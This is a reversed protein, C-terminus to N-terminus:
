YCSRRGPFDVAQGNPFVPFEGNMVSSYVMLFEAEATLQGTLFILSCLRWYHGKRLDGEGEHISNKMFGGQLEAKLFRVKM